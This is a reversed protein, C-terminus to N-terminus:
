ADERRGPKKQGFDLEAVEGNKPWPQRGALIEELMWLCNSQRKQLDAAAVPESWIVCLGSGTRTDVAMAILGHLGPNQQKRHAMYRLARAQEVFAILSPGKFSDLWAFAAAESDAKM